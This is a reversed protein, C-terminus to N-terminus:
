IFAILHATIPHQQRLGLADITFCIAGFIKYSDQQMILLLDAVRRTRNIKWYNKM